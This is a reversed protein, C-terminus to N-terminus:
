KMGMTVISSNIAMKIPPAHTERAVKLIIKETTSKKKLKMRSIICQAEQMPLSLHTKLEPFDESMVKIFVRRM